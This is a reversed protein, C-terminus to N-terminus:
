SDRPLRHDSDDVESRFEGEFTRGGNNASTFFRPMAGIIGKRIMLQAVPRRFYPILCVFGISDTVFGPTLLLAGGVILMVGELLETTPLEGISLRNQVRALTEMGEHKLLAVGIVATLVVLAVTPLAGILGGVEILIVMEIVPIVIFIALVRRM